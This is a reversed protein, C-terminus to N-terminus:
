RVPVRVIERQSGFQVKVIYLGKPLNSLSVTHNGQALKLSHVMNGKLDFVKLNADRAVQLSISNQLATLSNTFTPQPTIPVPDEGNSSSSPTSASSPTPGDPDLSVQLNVFAFNNAAGSNFTLNLPTESATTITLPIYSSNKWNSSGTGGTSPLEFSGSEVGSGSWSVTTVAAAGYRLRIRYKGSGPIETIKYGVSFSSASNQLVPVSSIITSDKAGSMSGPVFNVADTTASGIKVIGTKEGTQAGQSCNADVQTLTVNDGGNASTINGGTNRNKMIRQVYKGSPSLNSLNGGVIASSSEGKNVISWNAWSIGLSEILSLWGNTLTWDQNGDGSALSTGWETAFIPFNNCYASKLSGQYTNHTPDSSYFHLTYMVNKARTETIPNARAASIDSSYSPTGVIILGDSDQARIKDILNEAYTKIQSWSILSGCGSSGGNCPENFVEYIVHNYNKQKAYSAISNFYTEANSSITHYHWDAIVYIGASWTYDMLNKTDTINKDVNDDGAAVRIVNAKWDNALTNVTSQNYFQSGESWKNWFLSMGRLVYPQNNKDLIKGDKVSLTGHESVPTAFSFIAMLALLFLTRMM